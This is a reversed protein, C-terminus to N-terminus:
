ARAEGSSSELELVPSGERWFVLRGGEVTVADIGLCADIVDNPVFGIVVLDPSYHVGYQEFLIRESEPYFRSIGAKIIEVTPHDGTRQDLMAELRYLYTEEFAAGAGYTFSDGLGLIRFVGDPKSLAHEVDRFGVSNHRYSYDFEDTANRGELM